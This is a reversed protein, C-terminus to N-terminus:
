LSGQRKSKNVQATVESVVEAAAQHGLKKQTVSKEEVHLFVSM